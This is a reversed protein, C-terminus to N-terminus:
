PIHLFNLGLSKCKHKLSFNLQYQGILYPTMLSSQTNQLCKIEYHGSSYSALILIENMYLGGSYHDRSSSVGTNNSLFITHTFSYVRHCCYPSTITTYNCAPVRLSLDTYAHFLHSTKFSYM